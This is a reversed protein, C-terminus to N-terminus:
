KRRVLLIDDLYRVIPVFDPIASLLQRLSPQGQYLEQVSYETYLLSTRKLSESAGAFVDLEAGQVDMWIFDIRDPNRELLWDDLRTAMIEIPDAFQIEPHVNLHGSPERLSGSADWSAAGNKDLRSVSPHFQVLGKLKAVACRHLFVNSLTQTRALFRDQATACPEFCHIEAGPFISKFWATHTGDNAGIELILPNKTHIHKRLLEESIAGPTVPLQGTIQYYFPCLM